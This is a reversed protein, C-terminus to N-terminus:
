IILFSFISSTTSTENAPKVEDYIQGQALVAGPNGSGYLYFHFSTLAPPDNRKM